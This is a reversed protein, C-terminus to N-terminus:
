PRGRERQERNFDAVWSEDYHRQREYDRADELAQMEEEDYGYECAGCTESDNFNKRGCLMCRPTMAEETRLAKM